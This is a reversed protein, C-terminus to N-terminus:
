ETFYKMALSSVDRKSFLFTRNQKTKNQLIKFFEASAQIKRFHTESFKTFAIFFSFCCLSILLRRKKTRRGGIEEKRESTIM